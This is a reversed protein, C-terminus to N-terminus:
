CSPNEVATESSNLVQDPSIVARGKLKGSALRTFAEEVRSLPIRTLHPRIRGTEALAILDILEAKSGGFTTSIAAGYPLCRDQFAFSGRGRGVVVIEGLPAILGAGLAITAGAGVFDLVAEVRKGGTSELVTATTQEDAALCYDAGLE